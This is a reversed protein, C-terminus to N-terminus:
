GVGWVVVTHLGGPLGGTEPCLSASTGPSVPCPQQPESGALSSSVGRLDTEAGGVLFSFLTFLPCSLSFPPFSLISVAAQAPSAPAAGPESSPERMMVSAAATGKGVHVLHEVDFDSVQM